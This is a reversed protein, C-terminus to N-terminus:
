LSQFIYIEAEKGANFRTHEITLRYIDAAKRKNISKIAKDLANITVNPINSDKVSETIISGEYKNLKHYEADFNM